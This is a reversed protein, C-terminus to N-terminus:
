HHDILGPVSYLPMVRYAKLNFYCNLMFQPLNTSGVPLTRDVWQPTEEIFEKSLEPANSYNDAFHWVDLDTGSATRMGRTVTSPLHRYEAWAEQYGFAVDKFPTEGDVFIQEQFVPQEGINAFTSWYFDTRKHRTFKKELGQQYTHHQRICAVGIVIGHETFSKTFRSSGTSMSYAGLEGVYNSNDDLSTPATQAVQQINLPTRSGGLYESRQLRADPNNVGFFATLLECYRSGSRALTELMKQYQFAFRLDNITAGTAGTLDVEIGPVDSGQNGYTVGYWVDDDGPYVGGLVGHQDGPGQGIDPLYRLSVPLTADDDNYYFEAADGTSVLGATRGLPIAVPNGRQPSPLCSTFYDHFKAVKPPMGTYNNPSWANGNPTESEAVEGVQLHMPDIVNQDRFWDDYIKAFARFPLPSVGEPITGVPIGLMDAVSGSVCEFEPLSPIEYDEDDVWASQTNEGMVNVFKDYLLRYPVFFWHQDIFLNDMVPRLFSSSVREFHTSKMKFTDGPLVEFNDIIVLEGVNLTTTNGHSLDFASRRMNVTPVINYSNGRRSRKM